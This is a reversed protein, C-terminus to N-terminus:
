VARRFECNISDSDGQALDREPDGQKSQRVSPVSEDHVKRDRRQRYKRDWGCDYWPYLAFWQRFGEHIEYRTFADVLARRNHIALELSTLLCTWDVEFKKRSVYSATHDASISTQRASSGQFIMQPNCIRVASFIPTHTAM